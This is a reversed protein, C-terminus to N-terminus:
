DNNAGGMIEGARLIVDEHWGDWPSLNNQRLGQKIQECAQRPTDYVWGCGRTVEPYSLRNPSVTWAGLAAGEQMALGFTEQYATSILVRATALAKYYELKTNCETATETWVVKKNLDPYMQGFLTKIELFGRHNKEPAIRHPFVVSLPRDSWSVKSDIRLHQLYDSPKVPSGVAHIKTRLRGVERPTMSKQASSLILEAHFESGVFLADALEFWGYEIYRGWDGCEMRALFDHPDYTGAHLYLAINVKKETTDRMYALATTAPGWGDLSLVWDGAKISAWQSALNAVQTGKWKWTNVPDLFEGATLEGVPNDGDINIPTFGMRKLDAPWWEYWQATYRHEFPEIPLLYINKNTM